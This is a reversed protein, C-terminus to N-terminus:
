AGTRMPLLARLRPERLWIGAWVVVGLIIQIFFPDGVRWHTLIAGGMYGTLLIAGLVATRPFVYFLACVIELIGLPFVMSVPIGILDLDKKEAMGALKMVGSAFFAFAALGTLVRGTWGAAGVNGAM